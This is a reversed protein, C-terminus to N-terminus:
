RAPSMSGDLQRCILGNVKCLPNMRWLSAAAKTICCFVIVYDDKSGAVIPARVVHVARGATSQLLLSVIEVDSVFM